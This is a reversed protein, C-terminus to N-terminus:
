LEPGGVVTCFVCIGCVVFSVVQVDIGTATSFMLAPGYAILALTIDTSTLELNYFVPLYVYIMLPVVFVLSLCPLWYTAGYIYVDAPVGILTIGTFQSVTISLAIPVIKMKRGGLLYEGITNYRHKFFGFYVGISATVLLM